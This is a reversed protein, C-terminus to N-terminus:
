HIEAFKYARNQPYRHVYRIRFKRKARSGSVFRKDQPESVDSTDETPLDNSDNTQLQSEEGVSNTESSVKDYGLMAGVVAGSALSVILAIVM